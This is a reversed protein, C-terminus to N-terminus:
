SARTQENTRQVGASLAREGELPLDLGWFEPPADISQLGVHGTRPTGSVGVWTIRFNAKRTKRHISVTGGEAIAVKSMGGLRVGSLSIDVTHTLLEFPQGNKDTGVVRVGLVM